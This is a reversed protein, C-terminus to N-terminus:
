CLSAAMRREVSSRRMGLALSESVASSRRQHYMVSAALPIM